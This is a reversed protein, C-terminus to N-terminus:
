GLAEALEFEGEGGGVVGAEGGLAPVEVGLGGRQAIGHLLPRGLELAALGLAFREARGQEVALAGEGLVLAREVGVGLLEAGGLGLGAEGVLAAGGGGGREVPDVALAVGVGGAGVGEAGFGFGEFRLDGVGFRREGVGLLRLGLAGGFPVAGLGLGPGGALADLAACASARRAASATAVARAASSVCRFRRAKKSASISRM